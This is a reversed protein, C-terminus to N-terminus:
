QYLDDGNRIKTYYYSILSPDCGVEKAVQKQSKTELEKLIFEKSLNYQTKAESATRKTIDYKNLRADILAHSVNFIEGIERMSKGEKLYLKELMKKPIIKTKRLGIDIAHQVNEQQTSWELNSIENNLPNGDIHNIQPKGEVKPIFAKAILRHIKKSKKKMDKTLEIKWYGTTTMSPRLIREKTIYSCGNKLGKRRPLSKIDGKNSVEYLGEYGEIPKWILSEM